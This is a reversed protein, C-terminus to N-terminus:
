RLSLSICSLGHETEYCVIGLEEDMTRSLPTSGDIIKGKKNCGSSMIIAIGIVIGILFYHIMRM